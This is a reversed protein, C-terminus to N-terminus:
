LLEHQDGEVIAESVLRRCLEDIVDQHIPQARHANRHPPVEPEPVARGSLRAPSPPNSVRTTGSTSTSPSITEELWMRPSTSAPSTSVAVRNRPAGNWSRPSTTVPSWRPRASPKGVAFM